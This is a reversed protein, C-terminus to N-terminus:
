AGGREEPDRWGGGSEGVEGWEVVVVLQGQRPRVVLV